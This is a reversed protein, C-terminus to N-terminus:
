ISMNCHLIEVHCVPSQRTPFGRGMRSKSPRDASEVQGCCQELNERGDRRFDRGIGNTRREHCRYLVHFRISTTQTSHKALTRSYGFEWPSSHFWTEGIKIAGLVCSLLHLLHSLFLRNPKSICFYIVTWLSCYWYQFWGQKSSLVHHDLRQQVKNITQSKIHVNQHTISPYISWPLTDLCRLVEWDFANRQTHYKNSGNFIINIVQNVHVMVPDNNPPDNLDNM